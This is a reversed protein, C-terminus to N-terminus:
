GKLRKMEEAMTWLARNIKLDKDMGTVARTRTRKGAATRGDLGGRILNEQITNFTTWLDSSRDESRRVTLLQDETIPAPATDTDYKISLAARAFIKQEEPKLTLAQMGERREDITNFNDLVRFAGEIVDDVANGTHRVRVDDQVQGSVMGNACVFRFVGSLLQVSSGGDHSNLLVIENAQAANIQDVHRLRLMHKTFERRGENRVRTQCVMFPQFGQSRLGQLVDITPVYVYRDSRSEHKEVAFISPAVKRIQDDSLPNSSRAGTQSGSFRSALRYSM